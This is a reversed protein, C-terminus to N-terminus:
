QIEYEEELSDRIEVEDELLIKEQSGKSHEYEFKDDDENKYDDYWM